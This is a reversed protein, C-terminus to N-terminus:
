CEVRLVRAGDGQVEVPDLEDLSPLFVEQPNIFNNSGDLFM